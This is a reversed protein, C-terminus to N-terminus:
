IERNALVRRVQDQRIRSSGDWAVHPSCGHGRLLNHCADEGDDPYHQEAQAAAVRADYDAQSEGEEQAGAGGPSNVLLHLLEHALTYDGRMGANIFSINRAGARAADQTVLAATTSEGNRGPIDEVYFARLGPGAESWPWCEGCRIELRSATWGGRPAGTVRVRTLIDSSGRAASSSTVTEVISAAAAVSVTPPRLPDTWLWIGLRSYIERAIALDRTFVEQIDRRTYELASNVDAIQLRVLRREHAFLEVQTARVDGHAPEYAAEVRDFMTAYRLRFDDDVSARRLGGGAIDGSHVGLQLDARSSVIMLARSVFVGAHGSVATCTIAAHGDNADRVHGDPSLTRVQVTVTAARAARDVVRVYFRRPDCGIFHDEEAPGNRLESPPRWLGAYIGRGEFAREWLGMRLLTAVNGTAPCAYEAGPHVLEVRPVTPPGGTSVVVDGGGAGRRRGHAPPPADGLPEVTLTARLRSTEDTVVIADHIPLRVTVSIHGANTSVSAGIDPQDTVDVVTSARPYVIRDEAGGTRPRGVPAGGSSVRVTLGGSPVDVGPRLEVSEVTVRYRSV